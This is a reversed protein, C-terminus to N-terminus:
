ENNGKYVISYGPGDLNQHEQEYCTYNQVLYMVVVGSIFLTLSIILLKLEDSM